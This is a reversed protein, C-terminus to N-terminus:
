SKIMGHKQIIIDLSHIFWANVPNEKPNDKVKKILKYIDFLAENKHKLEFELKHYGDSYIRWWECAENKVRKMFKTEKESQELQSKLSQNIKVLEDNWKMWKKDHEKEEKLQKIQQEQKEHLAKYYKIKDNLESRLLSIQQELNPNILM